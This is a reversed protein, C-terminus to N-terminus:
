AIPSVSIWAMKWILVKNERLFVVISFTNTEKFLFRYLIHTKDLIGQSLPRLYYEETRLM